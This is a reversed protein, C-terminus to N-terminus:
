AVMVTSNSSSAQATQAHANKNQEADRIELKSPEEHLASLHRWTLGGGIKTQAM